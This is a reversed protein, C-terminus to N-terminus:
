QCAYSLGPNRIFPCPAPDFVRGLRFRLGVAVNESPSPLLLEAPPPRSYFIFGRASPLAGPVGEFSTSVAMLRLTRQPEVAAHLAVVSPVSEDDYRSSRASTSSVLEPGTSLATLPQSPFDDRTLCFIVGPALPQAQSVPAMHVVFVLCALGLSLWRAKDKAGHWIHTHRKGM